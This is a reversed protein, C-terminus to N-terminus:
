EDLPTSTVDAPGEGDVYRILNTSNVCYARTGTTDVVEPNANAAYDNGVGVLTYNYGSKTITWNGELFAPGSPPVLLEDFSAAYRGIAQRFQVQSASITRLNSIAAAENSTMRARVLNPIAIAALVSIVAVVIALEILTFGQKHKNM